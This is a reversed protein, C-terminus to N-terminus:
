GLGVNFLRPWYKGTVFLRGNDADYAIGNLYNVTRLRHVPNLLGQADIWQVVHGTLPDICVIVDAGWVNALINGDVFQLDNINGLAEGDCTVHVSGSEALTDPDLYRLLSTGDSVILRVGDHTIGWGEHPYDEVAILELNEIDYCYIRRNKWTLQILKKEWITLGEGFVDDPLRHSKLVKGSEPDVKRLSSKGYYGTSEYLFGGHYILGQTYAKRDHPYTHIVTAKVIPIRATTAKRILEVTRAHADCRKIRKKISLFAVVLFIASVFATATLRADIESFDM